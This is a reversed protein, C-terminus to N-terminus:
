VWAHLTVNGREGKGQDLLQQITNLEAGLKIDCITHLEPIEHETM